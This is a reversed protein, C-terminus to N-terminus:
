QGKWKEIVEEMAKRFVDSQKLGLDTCAQKFEQVFEKKYKASIAAMNEKQWAAMYANQDFPQGDKTKKPM